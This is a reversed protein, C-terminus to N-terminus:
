GVLLSGVFNRQGRVFEEIMMARKGALQIEHLILAGSGTAVAIEKGIQM